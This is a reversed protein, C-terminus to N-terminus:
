FERSGKFSAWFSPTTRGESQQHHLPPLAKNIGSRSIQMIVAVVVFFFAVAIVLRPEKEHNLEALDVALLEVDCRTRLIYDLWM